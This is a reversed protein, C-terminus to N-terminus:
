WELWGAPSWWSTSSSSWSASSPWWIWGTNQYMCFITGTHQQFQQGRRKRVQLDPRITPDFHHGAEAAEVQRLTGPFNAGSRFPSNTGCTTQKFNCYSGAIASLLSPNGETKEKRKKRKKDMKGNKWKQLKKMKENKESRWKRMHKSFDNEKTNKDNTKRKKQKSKMERGGLGRRSGEEVRFCRKKLCFDSNKLCSEPLPFFFSSLRFFFSSLLLLVRRCFCTGKWLPM